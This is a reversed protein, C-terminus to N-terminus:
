VSGEVPKSLFARDLEYCAVKSPTGDSDSMERVPFHSLRKFGLQLVLREQLSGLQRWERSPLSKPVGSDEKKDPMFDYSPLCVDECTFSKSHCYPGKFMVKTVVKANPPIPWEKNEGDVRLVNLGIRTFLGYETPVGIGGGNENSKLMFIDVTESSMDSAVSVVIEEIPHSIHDTSHMEADGIVDEVIDGSYVESIRKLDEDKADTVKSFVDAYQKQMVTAWDKGQTIEGRITDVQQMLLASGQGSSSESVSMIALQDMYRMVEALVPLQDLVVDNLYKRLRLLQSKRYSNLGYNERCTNSCTLHFISLWPQAECNTIHLLEDLPIEEWKNEVFKEWAVRAHETDKGITVVQRRRTWPPEELLPVMLMLYDHTDLIRTQASLPLSEAHECLYRAMATAAISTRFVTDLNSEVIEELPTRSQLHRALELTPIPEKQRRVMPNLM